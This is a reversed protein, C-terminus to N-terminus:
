KSPWDPYNSGSLDLWQGNPIDNSNQQPVAYFARAATDLGLVAISDLAKQTVPIGYMTFIDRLDKGIVKSSIVYLLDENSVGDGDSFTFERVGYKDKEVSSSEADITGDMLRRGINILGLFELTMKANPKSMGLQDKSYLYGLEFFIPRLSGQGVDSSDWLNAKVEKQLSEGQKGTELGAKIIQYLEPYNLWPSINDGLTAYRRIMTASSLVNNDCEVLCTLITFIRGVTNHGLEHAWGWRADIGAAGDSPNGSCLFGCAALWGVFHQVVPADHIPGDCNWALFICVSQGQATLTENNFGMAIHNSKFLQNELYDVVYVEPDLDGMADRANNITQQVEGGVFKVTQWGFDGQDLEYVAQATDGASMPQTFDFASYHVAGTIKLIVKDGHQAGSYHLFLPGGFPTVFDTTGTKHLPITFSQPHRPRQYNDSLPNGYTRIHNTQIDLSDIGDADVVDIAITGGPKAGLGIATFGSQQAITVTVTEPKTSVAMNQAAEPMYDGAGRPPVTTYKRAFYLFSDSAYDRLFTNADGSVRMEPQNYIISKRQLDAWLVLLRYIKTNKEKFIDFGNSQMDNLTTMLRSITDTPKTDTTFDHVLNKNALMTLMSHIDNFQGTREVNDAATRSASISLGDNGAYYNGPYGSMEMGMAHVVQRGGPSDTWSNHIYFIAKGAEQYHRIQSELTKSSKVGRGLILIDAQKWCSNSANNIDCDIKTFPIDRLNLYTTIKNDGDPYGSVIYNIHDPTKDASGDVLWNFARNFLPRHANQTGNLLRFIDDGYALGRGKNAGQVSM